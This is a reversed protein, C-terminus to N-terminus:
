LVGKTCYHAWAQMLERRKEFLDGRRYAAEVGNGVAHALAMEVVHNPYATTEAAWDRFTSRFGHVTVDGRGMRHLARNLAHASSASGTRPDIFIFDGKRALSELIVVARGSLPVRHEKGSKMREAPVTWVDGDIEDWRAGLVEASRAATLILFELATASVEQKRRLEAVFDAVEAYPMAAFHEVRRMKRRAPLLHDLHGRWRAPNEGSRLGRVKAWDLVAEIRGRVRSATEPKTKWIQELVSVVIGTDIDAVSLEGIHPYVYATLSQVWQKQSRPDRWGAEHAAIYAEACDKFTKGRATELLRQRHAARRAELPDIKDLLLRRADRAKARAEALTILSYPGLGMHRARGNLTYRLLWARTNSESIQLYVGDGVAYRGQKKLKAVTASSLPKRM